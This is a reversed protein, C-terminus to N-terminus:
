IVPSGVKPQPHQGIQIVSVDLIIKDGGDILKGATVFSDVGDGRFRFDLKLNRTRHM